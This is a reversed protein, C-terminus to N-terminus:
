RIIAQLKEELKRCEEIEATVGGDMVYGSDRYVPDSLQWYEHSDLAEALLGIEEDTLEVMHTHKPM